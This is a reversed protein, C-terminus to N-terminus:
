HTIFHLCFEHFHRVLMVPPLVHLDLKWRIKKAMAADPDNGSLLLSPSVREKASMDIPTRRRRSRECVVLRKISRVQNYLM